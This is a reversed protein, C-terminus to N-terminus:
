RMQLFESGSSQLYPLSVVPSNLFSFSIVNSWSMADTVFGMRNFSSLHDTLVMSTHVCVWCIVWGVVWALGCVYVDDVWGGGVWGVLRGM